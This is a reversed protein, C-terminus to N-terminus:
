QKVVSRLVREGNAVVELLYVGQPLESIDIAHNSGVVQWSKVTQGLHNRLVLMEADVALEVKVQGMTPNPYVSLGAGWEPENVSSIIEIDAQYRPLLQYGDEFPESTDFQGGLVSIRLM